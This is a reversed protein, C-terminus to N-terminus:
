MGLALSFPWNNLQSVPQISAEMSVNSQLMSFWNEWENLLFDRESHVIFCLILPFLFSVGPSEQRYPKWRKDQESSDKYDRCLRSDWEHGLSSFLPYRNKYVLWENMFVSAATNWFSKNKKLFRHEGHLLDMKEAARMVSSFYIVFLAGRPSFGELAWTMTLLGGHRTFINFVEVSKGTSHLVCLESQESSPRWTGTFSM